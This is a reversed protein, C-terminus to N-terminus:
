RRITITGHLDTRWIECGVAELRELAAPAPHGYSNDAGVSIVVRQPMVTQLFELSSSYASGHHGAILVEVQPLETRNMLLQEGLFGRDGSILIDYNERTFLVCLSNENSESAFTPGFITIKGDDWQLMLDESVFNVEAATNETIRAATEADTTCPLFLVHTDVRTLLYPIGGAHDRDGHTLIIGDLVTIGQSLLTQSAIDAAAEDDDGGCDVLFNKGGSQILICQGQGVDMVTTRVDWLLPEAWSVALAACLGFVGCCILVAPHKKGMLLFLGLLVYVFILWASIYPSVTYVATLPFAAILKAIWIVLRMPFSIVWAAVAAGPFWLFSLLAAMVVGAFTWNVLWLTILNTLVGLISITGFTWASLPTTLSMAALTVSLSGSVFRGLGGKGLHAILWQKLPETFLCIGLVCGVSLQFSLSTVTFPNVGLMVLVAFGLATLSDYDRDLLSALVMLAVMICARTVSPTFGAMAAFVVLTPLVLMATLFRRRLALNSLLSYLLMVHLGSVAVIHRIGSIKLATDTEYDLLTTDGLLLAQAFPLVDDAFLASLREKVQKALVAGLFQGKERNGTHMEGEGKPYGLLFMGKGAHYTPEERGGPPTYRLRFSGTITDGPAIEGSGNLYLKIKYSKGELEMRADVATGYDTEYSYNEATFTTHIVTGDLAKVPELFLVSFALLWFAGLGFGLLMLGAPSRRIGYLLAGCLIIVAPLLMSIGEPLYVFLLCGLSFGLATWALKRM